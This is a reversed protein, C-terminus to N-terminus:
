SLSKGYLSTGDHRRMTDTKLLRSRKNVRNKFIREVSYLCIAPLGLTILLYVWISSTGPIISTCILILCYSSLLVEGVTTGTDVARTCAAAFKGILYFGVAVGVIGFNYYLELIIGPVVGTVTSDNFLYGGVVNTIGTAQPLLSPLKLLIFPANITAIIGELFTKGYAYGYNQVMEISLGIMSFRGAQWDFFSVISTYADAVQGRREATIYIIYVVLVFVANNNIKTQLKPMTRSIIILLPLVGLLGESRGGAWRTNMLVTFIIMATFGYAFISINRETKKLIGIAIFTLGWSLWRSMFYYKAGGAAIERARDVRSIEQVISYSDSFLLFTGLLGLVTFIAGLAFLLTTNIYVEPQGKIDKKGDKHLPYWLCLAAVIMLMIAFYLNAEPYDGSVRVIDFFGRSSEQEGIFHFLASVPYTIIFSMAVLFKGNVLKNDKKYLMFSWTSLVALTVNVVIFAIPHSTKNWFFFM